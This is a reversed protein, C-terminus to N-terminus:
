GRLRGASRDRVVNSFIALPGRPQLLPRAQEAGGRTLAAVAGHAPKPRRPRALEVGVNASLDREMKVASPRACRPCQCAQAAKPRRPRALGARVFATARRM